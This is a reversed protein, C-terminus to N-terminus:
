RPIKFDVLLSKLKNLLDLLCTSQNISKICTEKTFLKKEIIQM